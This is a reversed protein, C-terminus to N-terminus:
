REDRDARLLDESPQRGAGYSRDRIHKSFALREEVTFPAAAELIRRLEQELSHGKLEAKIKLASIVDDSLNRVLVQGM